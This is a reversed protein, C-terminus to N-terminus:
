VKFKGYKGSSFRSIEKQEDATKVIVTAQFPRDACNLDPPIRQVPCTPGITISGEIGSTVVMTIPTSTSAPTLTPSPTPTPLTTPAVKAVQKRQNDIIASRKAYIYVVSVGAIVMLGVAITLVVEALTFGKNTKM